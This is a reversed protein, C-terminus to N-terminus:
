VTAISEVACVSIFTLDILVVNAEETVLAVIEAGLAQCMAENKLGLTAHAQLRGTKATNPCVHKAFVILLWSIEAGFTNSYQLFVAVVVHFFSHLALESVILGSTSRTGDTANGFLGFDCEIFKLEIVCVQTQTSALAEKPM